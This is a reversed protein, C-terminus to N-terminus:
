VPLGNEDYFDSHESTAGPLRHRAVDQVLARLAKYNAQQTPTLAADVAARSAADSLLRPLGETSRIIQPKEM